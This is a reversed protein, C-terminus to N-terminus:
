DTKHHLLYSLCFKKGDELSIPITMIEVVDRLMLKMDHSSTVFVPPNFTIKLKSDRLTRTARGIITNSFESLAEGIDQTIENEVSAEGLMISMVRNGIVLATEEHYHILVKGEIEGYIYAVVCVAYGQFSFSDVAEQSAEQPEAKLNAMKSLATVTENVFPMLIKTHVQFLEM